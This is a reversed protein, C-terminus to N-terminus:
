FENPFLFLSSVVITHTSYFLFHTLLLCCFLNTNDIVMTELTFALCPHELVNMTTDSFMNCARNFITTNMRKIEIKPLHTILDLICQYLLAQMYCSLFFLYLLFLCTHAPNWFSFDSHIPFTLIQM